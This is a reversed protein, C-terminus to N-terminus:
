YKTLQPSTTSTTKSELAEYIAYAEAKHSEYPARYPAVQTMQAITGSSAYSHTTELSVARDFFITAAKYADTRGPGAWDRQLFVGQADRDAGKNPDKAGGTETIAAELAAIQVRKSVGLDKGAQIIRTYDTVERDLIPRHKVTLQSSAGPSVNSVSKM